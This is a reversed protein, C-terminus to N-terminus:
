LRGGRRHAPRCWYILALVNVLGLLVSAFGLPRAEPGLVLRVIGYPLAGGLAMSLAVITLIVGWRRQALLGSAAVIGVIAAPWALSFALTINTIKLGASEDLGFAGWAILPLALLNALLGIWTMLWYGRLRPGM